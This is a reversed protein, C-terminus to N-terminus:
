APRMVASPTSSINASIARAPLPFDSLGVQERGRLARYRPVREQATALLRGLREAGRDQDYRALEEIEQRKERFWSSSTKRAMRERMHRFDYALDSPPNM